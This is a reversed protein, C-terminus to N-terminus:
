SSAKIEITLNVTKGERREKLDRQEYQFVELKVLEVHKEAGSSSSDLFCEM